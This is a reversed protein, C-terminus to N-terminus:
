NLVGKFDSAIINNITKKLYPTVEEVSKKENNTPVLMLFGDEDVRTPADKLWELDM